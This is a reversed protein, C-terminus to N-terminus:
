KKEDLVFYTGCIACYVVAVERTKAQEICNPRDLPISAVSFMRAKLPHPCGTEEKLEVRLAFLADSKSTTAM